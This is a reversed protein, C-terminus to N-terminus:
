GAPVSEPSSGIARVRVYLAVFFPLFALDYLGALPLMGYGAYLTYAIAFIGWTKAAIVVPLLAALQLPHTGVRFYLFGFITTCFYFSWLWFPDDPIPRGELPELSRYFLAWVPSLVINSMGGFRMVRAPWSRSLNIETPDLRRRGAFSPAAGCPRFNARVLFSSRSPEHSGVPCRKELQSQLAREHSSDFNRRDSYVEARPEM